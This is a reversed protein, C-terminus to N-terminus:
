SIVYRQTALPTDNDAKAQVHWEDKLKVGLQSLRAILVSSGMYDMKCELVQLTAAACHLPQMGELPNECM